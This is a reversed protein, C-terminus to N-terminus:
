DRKKGRYISVKWTAPKIANRGLSIRVDKRKGLLGDKGAPSHRCVTGRRGGGGGGEAQQLAINEKGRHWAPWNLGAKPGNEGWRCGLFRKRAELVQSQQGYNETPRACSYSTALHVGSSPWPLTSDTLWSPPLRITMLHGPPQSWALPPNTTLSPDTNRRSHVLRLSRSINGWACTREGPIRLVIEQSSSKWFHSLSMDMDKEPFSFHSGGGGWSVSPWKLIPGVTKYMKLKARERKVFMEQLVPVLM